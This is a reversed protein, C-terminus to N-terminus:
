SQAQLHASSCVIGENRGGGLSFDMLPRDYLTVEDTPDQSSNWRHCVSGHFFSLASIKTFSNALKNVRKNLYLRQVKEGELRQGCVLGLMLATVLCWFGPTGTTMM